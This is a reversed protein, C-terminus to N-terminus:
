VESSIFDEAVEQFEKPDRLFSKFLSKQRIMLFWVLETQNAEYM